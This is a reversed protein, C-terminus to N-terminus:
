RNESFTWWAFGSDGDSFCIFLSAPENGDFYFWMITCDDGLDNISKFSKSKYSNKGFRVTAFCTGENNKFNYDSTNIVIHSKTKEDEGMFCIVGNLNEKNLDFYSSTHQVKDNSVIRNQFVDQRSEVFKKNIPFEANVNMSITLIAFIMLIIHKM